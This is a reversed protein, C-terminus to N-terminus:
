SKMVAVYKRGNQPGRRVANALDEFPVRELWGTLKGKDALSALTKVMEEVDTRNASELWKAIDFKKGKIGGGAPPYSVVKASKPVLSKFTNASEADPSGNLVLKPKPLDDLVVKLGPHSAYYEGIVVDGGLLKLREVTPAYTSATESVLSITKLGIAAALQVVATGVPGGAANQLVVDGPEMKTFDSLLRFATFPAATLTAAIEPRMTNPVACVDNESLISLETWTGLGSQVM